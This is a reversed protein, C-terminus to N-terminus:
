QKTIRIDPRSRLDVNLLDNPLLLGNSTLRTVSLIDGVGYLHRAQPQIIARINRKNRLNPTAMHIGIDLTADEVLDLAFIELSFPIELVM